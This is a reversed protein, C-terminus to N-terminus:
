RQDPRLVKAVALAFLRDDWVLYAEYLSGGGLPRLVSRGPILEDGEGLAWSARERVATVETAGM